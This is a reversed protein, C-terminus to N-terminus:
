KEKAFWCRRSGFWWHLMLCWFTTPPFTKGAQGAILISASGTSRLPIWPKPYVTQICALNAHIFIYVCICIYSTYVCHVTKFFNLFLCSYRLGWVGMMSFSTQLLRLNVVVQINRDLRLCIDELKVTALVQHTGWWSSWIGRDSPGKWCASSYLMSFMFLPYFCKWRHTQTILDLRWVRKFYKTQDRGGKFISHSFVVNYRM